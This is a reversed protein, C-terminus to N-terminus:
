SSGAKPHAARGKFRVSNRQCGQLQWLVNYVNGNNIRSNGVVVDILRRVLAQVSRNISMKAGDPTKFSACPTAYRGPAASRIM